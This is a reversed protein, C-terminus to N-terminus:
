YWCFRYIKWDQKGLFQAVEFKQGYAINKLVQLPAM